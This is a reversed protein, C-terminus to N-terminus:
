KLLRTALFLVFHNSHKKQFWPVIVNKILSTKGTNRKGYIVMKENREIGKFIREREEHLNCIDKEELLADYLFQGM